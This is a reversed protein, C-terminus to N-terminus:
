MSSPQSIGNKQTDIISITSEHFFFYYLQEHITACYIKCKKSYTQEIVIATNDKLWILQNEIEKDVNHPAQANLVHISGGIITFYFHINHINLYYIDHHMLSWDAKRSEIIMHMNKYEHTADIHLHKNFKVYDIHFSDFQISYKNEGIKQKGYINELNEIFAFLTNFKLKKLINSNKPYFDIIKIDQPYENVEYAFNNHFVRFTKNSIKESQVTGLLSLLEKKLQANENCELLQLISKEHTTHEITNDNFLTRIKKKKILSKKQQYPVVTVLLFQKEDRKKKLVFQISYEKHPMFLYDFDYGYKEYFEIMRATNNIFSKDESSDKILSNFFKKYTSCDKEKYFELNPCLSIAKDLRQVLREVAHFTLRYEIM